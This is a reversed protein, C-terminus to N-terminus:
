DWDFWDDDDFDYRDDWDDDYYYAGGFSPRSGYSGFGRCYEMSFDTVRGTCADVDMEYETNGAYFEIEYVERGDDWDRNAKTFSAEAAKVGAYDLAIQKAEDLSIKDGAAFATAGLALMMLVAMMMALAKKM